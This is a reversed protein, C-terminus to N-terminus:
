GGRAKDRYVQEPKSNMLVWPLETPLESKLDFIFARLEDGDHWEVLCAHVGEHKADASVYERFEDIADDVAERLGRTARAGIGRGGSSNWVFKTTAKTEIRITFM